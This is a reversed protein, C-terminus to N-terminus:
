DDREVGEVRVSAGVLPGRAREESGTTRVPEAASPPESEIRDILARVSAPDVSQVEAILGSVLTRVDRASGLLEEVVDRRVGRDGSVERWHAWFRRSRREFGLPVLERCLPLIAGYLARVQIMSARPREEKSPPPPITSRRIVGPKPPLRRGTSGPAGSPASSSASAPAAGGSGSSPAVPPLGVVSSPPPTPPTPPPPPPARPDLTENLDLDAVMKKRIESLPEPVPITTTPREDDFDRAAPVISGTTPKGPARGPTTPEREAARAGVLADSSSMREPALVRTDDRLFEAARTPEAPTDPSPSPAPKAESIREVWPARPPAPEFSQEYTLDDHEAQEAAVPRLVPRERKARPPLPPPLTRPPAPFSARPRQATKRPPAVVEEDGSSFAGGDDGEFPSSLPEPEPAHFSWVTHDESRRLGAESEEGRAPAPTPTAQLRDPFIEVSSDTDITGLVSSEGLALAGALERAAQRLVDRQEESALRPPATRDVEPPPQLLAASLKELWDRAQDRDPGDGWASTQWAKITAIARPAALASADRRVAALLTEPWSAEAVAADWGEPLQDGDWAVHPAYCRTRRRVVVPDRWGSAFLYPRTFAM